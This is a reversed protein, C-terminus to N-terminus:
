ETTNHVQSCSTEPKIGPEALIRELSQHYDNRCSEHRESRQGNNRCHNHSIAALPKSLINHRTYTLLVAPFCPYTCKSGHYLQFAASFPTLCWVILRNFCSKKKNIALIHCYRCWFALFFFATRM